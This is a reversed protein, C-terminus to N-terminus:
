PGGPALSRDPETEGSSGTPVYRIRAKAIRSDVPNRSMLCWSVYQILDSRAQILENWRTQVLGAVDKWAGTKMLKKLGAYVRCYLGEPLVPLHQGHRKVAIIHRGPEARCVSEQDGLQVPALNKADALQGGGFLGPGLPELAEGGGPDLHQEAAAEIAAEQGKGLAQPNPHDGPKGSFCLLQDIGEEPVLDLSVSKEGASSPAPFTVAGAPRALATIFPKTSCFSYFSAPIRCFLDPPFRVARPVSGPRSCGLPRWPSLLLLGTGRSHGPTPSSAGTRLDLGGSRGVHLPGHGPSQRGRNWM